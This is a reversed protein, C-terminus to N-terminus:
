IKKAYRKGNIREEFRYVERRRNQAYPTFVMSYIKDVM